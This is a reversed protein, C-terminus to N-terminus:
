HFFLPLMDHPQSSTKWKEWRNAALFLQAVTMRKPFTVTVITSRRSLVQRSQVSSNQNWICEKEDTCWTKVASWSGEQQSEAPPSTSLHVFFYRVLLAKYRGEFNLIDFVSWSFSPLKRKVARWFSDNFCAEAYAKKPILWLVHHIPWHLATPLVQLTSQKILWNQYQGNQPLLPEHKLLNCIFGVSIIQSM